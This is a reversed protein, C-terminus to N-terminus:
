FPTASCVRLPSYEFDISEFSLGHPAALEQIKAGFKESVTVLGPSDQQAGLPGQNLGAYRKM